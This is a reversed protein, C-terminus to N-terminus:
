AIVLIVAKNNINNPPAPPPPRTLNCLRWWYMNFRSVTTLSDTNQFLFPASPPPNRQYDARNVPLTTVLCCLLAPLGLPFDSYIGVIRRHSNYQTHTANFELNISRMESRLRITIPLSAISLAQSNLSNTM